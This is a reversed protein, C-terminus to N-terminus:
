GFVRQGPTLIGRPDFREKLACVEDWRAGYHHRHDEPGLEVAAIPYRLGGMAVARDFLVRNQRLHSAGMPQRGDFRLIDVLWNMPADPSLALNKAGEPRVFPFVLFVGEGLDDESLEALTEQLYAEVADDPVFLDLWPHAGKWSGSARWNQEFMGVRMLLAPFPVAMADVSTPGLSAVTEDLGDASANGAELVFRWAGNVHCVQGELFDFLGEQAARRQARLFDPLADFWARRVHMLEPAPVTRLTAATIIGFQGLGGLVAHFLDAHETPSCVVREGVGTVVELESVTDVVLGDAFSRGGIGGVSLVGGISIDLYDPLVAPVRDPLLRACVERFTVGAEARVTGDERPEVGLLTRM